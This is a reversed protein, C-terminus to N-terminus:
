QGCVGLENVQLCATEGYFADGPQPDPLWVANLSWAGSEDLDTTATTYSITGQPASVVVAVWTGTAGSPKKYAIQVTGAASLDIGTGLQITVTQNKFLTAM